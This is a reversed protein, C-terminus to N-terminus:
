ELAAVPARRWDMLSRGTVRRVASYLSKRSAFGVSLAVAEVKIEPDERFMALALDVQLHNVSDRFGRGTERRIRRQVTSASMHVARATTGLTLREGIRMSVYSLVSPRITRLWPGPAINPHWPRASGGPDASTESASPHREAAPHGSVWPRTLSSSQTPHDDIAM